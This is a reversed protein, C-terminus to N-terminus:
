RSKVVLKKEMNTWPLTALTTHIFQLYLFVTCAIGDFKNSCLFAFKKELFCHFLGLTFGVGYAMNFHLGINWIYNLMM